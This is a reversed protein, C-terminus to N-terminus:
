SALGDEIRAQEANIWAEVEATLQKSTKGESSIPEGIVVTITGPIKTFKKNIWCTGANHAVPIVPTNTAVAIEAGSRAYKGSEGVAMRTGEPFVLLNRGEKIREIGQAKVQRLAQLPNSRDVAVPKLAALGWGFFPMKLLEKKLITSLPPFLMQLYFTEWACQHKSMVVYNRSLDPLHGQREFKVGCLFRVSYINIFTWSRIFPQM